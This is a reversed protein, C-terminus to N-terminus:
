CPADDQLIASKNKTCASNRKWLLFDMKKVTIEHAPIVGAKETIQFLPYVFISQEKRPRLKNLGKKYPLGTIYSLITSDYNRLNYAEINNYNLGSLAPKIPIRGKAAADDWPQKWAPDVDAHLIYGSKSLIKGAIAKISSM